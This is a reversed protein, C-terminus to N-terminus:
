QIIARYNINALVNNINEPDNYDMNISQRKLSMLTGTGFSININNDLTTTIQDIFYLTKETDRETVELNVSFNIDEATFEPTEINNITNVNLYIYPKIVNNQRMLYIASIQSKLLSNNALIDSIAQCFDHIKSNTPM